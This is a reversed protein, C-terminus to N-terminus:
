RWAETEAKIKARSFWALLFVPLAGSVMITFVIGIVTYLWVGAVEDSLGEATLAEATRQAVHIQLGVSAALLILEVTSWIMLGLRSWRRRGTLAASAIILWATAAMAILAAAVITWQLSELVRMEIEFAPDAEGAEAALDSMWQYFQVTFLGGCNCLLMLAGYVIGIVGIVTPWKSRPQPIGAFDTPPAGTQNPQWPASSM